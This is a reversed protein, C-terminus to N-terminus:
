FWRGFLGGIWDRIPSSEKVNLTTTIAASEGFEYSGAIVPIEVLGSENVPMMYIFERYTVRPANWGRGTRETRTIFKDYTVGDVVIYDVDTSTKVTLIARGGKRVNKSWEWKLEPEFTKEPEDPEIPEPDVPAAFLARVAAVAEEADSDTLAALSITEKAKYTIKINTLSLIADGNNTITVLKETGSYSVNYYMETATAIKTEVDNGSINMVAAADKTANPSKAGIQVTAINTNAPLKFSIAQGNGLYVENNPGVNKYQEVTAAAAGDIFLAGSGSLKTSKGIIETRLKIYQPYGEHDSTYDTVDEGMPNYIRIADFWFSCQTDGTSNFVGNPDYFVTVVVTYDGYDLDTVKMVPIQYLPNSGDHNKSVEWTDGVKKYGFYNNVAYSEFIGGSTDKGQYVDVFISGSTNDTLSIIDFGTGKFTFTATPWTAGSMESSVTVKQASGMSFETSDKYAEDFGYIDGSSLESLQQTAEKDTERGTEYVTTWNILTNNDGYSGPNFTVFSDEYYVNSAPMVYVNRVVVQANGAFTFYVPIPIKTDLPKQLTYTVDGTTTNISGHGYSGDREVKKTDTGSFSITNVTEFDEVDFASVPIVVPLGFDVVYVKGSDAKLNYHLTLTKGDDSIDASIYQYLGSTYIGSVNQIGSLSKSIPQKVNSSNTVYADDPLYDASNRDNSSWLKKDGICNGSGDMLATDYKPEENGTYTMAIQMRGIEANANDDYWVVNLNTKKEVPELYILVLKAYNKAPWTIKDGLAGNVMPTTGANTVKDWAVTEDYWESGDARTVKNWNIKDTNGDQTGYWQDNTLDSTTRERKGETVTIKSINYDSNNKPAVIGIDRNAWFNFITTSNAYMDSEAPSVTGDPYVVAVTLAVSGKDEDAKVGSKGWDNPDRGWDKVYSDIEKTVETKQLYYAVLQDTNLFYHWVGDVTKYQWAGGYYRVHTLTTGVGTRDVSSANTQKNDADLRMAQWYYVTKTGDFFSYAPSPAITAIEIGEDSTAGATPTTITQTHNTSTRQGDYVEYNTIWYELTLSNSTMAGTPAKDEVIIKYTKGNIECYTTGVAVGKITLVTKSVDDKNETTFSYLKGYTTLSEDMKWGSASYTLYYTTRYYGYGSSYCFGTSNYSFSFSDYSSTSTSLGSYSSYTLYNGNGQITYVYSSYNWSKTVTFETADNIDTTSSINGDSDIVMYNTGDSILGTSSSSNAVAVVSGLKRTTGGPTNIYDPSVEATSKDLKDDKFSGRVDKTESVVETKTEGVSVRIEKVDGNGGTSGGGSEGGGPTTTKFVTSNKQAFTSLLDSITSLESDNYSAKPDDCWLCMMCGVLSNENITSGNTLVNYAKKNVGNQANSLPYNGSRRGLVYYWADNTNLIKHGRNILFDPSAPSYGTWGSTWYSIIIDSYFTGYNTTDNYYIGDNFAITLMGHSKVINDLNNVYTVFDGYKRATILDAFGSTVDNAYEDTGINFFQCGKGAFYEVYKEVLAMTFNVAKVNTIDVTRASNKYKVDKMGVAEMASLIADMHGPSNLLPIIEIGKEAAHSFISNMDTESLNESSNDFSANFSQIASKIAGGDYTTDNATVTMDNLLFRLGENGFALEIHTYGYEALKDIIANIQTASFYKRGCDIHYVRIPNSPDITYAPPDVYDTATLSATELMDEDEPQEEDGEITVDANGPQEPEPLTEPEQTPDSPAETPESSPELEQVPEEIVVPEGAEDAFAAMPLLGFVMTLLLLWVLLRKANKSTRTRNM